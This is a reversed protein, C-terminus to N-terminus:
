ATGSARDGDKGIGTIPLVIGAYRWSDGVGRYGLEVVNRGSRSVSALFLEVM